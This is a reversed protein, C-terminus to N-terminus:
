VICYDMAYAVLEVDTDERTTFWGKLFPIYVIYIYMYSYIMCM